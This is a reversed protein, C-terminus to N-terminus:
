FYTRFSFYLLDAYSGFESGLLPTAIAFPSEASPGKGVSKYLGGSLYCNESLSYELSFTLFASPDGFDLSAIVQLNLSLLPTIPHTLGPVLY